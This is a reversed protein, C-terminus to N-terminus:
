NQIILVETAKVLFEVEDGIQLDMLNSSGTTIISTLKHTGCVGAIRTLITGKQIDTIKSQLRNKLSLGGSLNKAVSVETEKFVVEVEDGTHMHKENGSKELLISTILNRGVRVEVLAVQGDTVVSEINGALRNM